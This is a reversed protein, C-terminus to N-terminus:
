FSCIILLLHKLSIDFNFMSNSSQWDPLRPFSGTGRTVADSLPEPCPAHLVHNHRPQERERWGEVVGIGSEEDVVVKEVNM